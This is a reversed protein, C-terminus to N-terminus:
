GSRAATSGRGAHSMLWREAESFLRERGYDVTIIHGAGTTWLINKEVAGLKKLAHKAVAPSVRPDERSQIILTPAVVRPLAHRARRVVRALEFITRGTVQGYALNREREIPDHISLPSNATVPGVFRGWVWHTNAAAQLWRPMGLYPAFLVLSAIDGHQAAVIVALAGGMSLGSVSLRRYRSRMELFADEAAGIWDAARSNNFESMSRGHGPLLPAFVAFGAKSLHKAYLSLTQPTDGFGHLLLVGHSGEERLDIAEAGKVIAADVAHRDRM